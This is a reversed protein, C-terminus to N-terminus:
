RIPLLGTRAGRLSSLRAERAIVRALALAARGFGTFICPKSSARPPPYPSLLGWPDGEAFALLRLPLPSRSPTDMVWAFSDGLLSRTRSLLGHATRNNDWVTAQAVNSSRPCGENEAVVWLAAREAESLVM